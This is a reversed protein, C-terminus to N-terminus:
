LVRRADIEAAKADDNKRSPDVDLWKVVFDDGLISLVESTFTVKVREDVREFRIYRGETDSKVLVAEKGGIASIYVPATKESNFRTLISYAGSTVRFVDLESPKTESADPKTRLMLTFTKTLPEDKIRSLQIVSEAGYESVLWYGPLSPDFARHELEPAGGKKIVVAFASRDSPKSDGTKCGALLLAAALAPVVLLRSFPIEPLIRM